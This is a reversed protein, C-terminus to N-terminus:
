CWCPGWCSATASGAPHLAIVYPASLWHVALAVASLATVYLPWGPVERRHRIPWGPSSAPLRRQDVTYGASRMLEARGGALDAGAMSRRAPPWGSGASGCALQPLAFHRDAPLTKGPVIFVAYIFTATAASSAPLMLFLALRGCLRVGISAGVLRRRTTQRVPQGV